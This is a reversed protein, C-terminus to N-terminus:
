PFLQIKKLIRIPNHLPSPIIHLSQSSLILVTSHDLATLNASSSCLAQKSSSLLFLALSPWVTPPIDLLPLLKNQHVTLLSLQDIVSPMNFPTGPCCQKQPLKTHVLTQSVGTRFPSARSPPKGSPFLFPSSCPFSLVRLEWLVIPPRPALSRLPFVSFYKQFYSRLNPEVFCSKIFVLIREKLYSFILSTKLYEKGFPYM